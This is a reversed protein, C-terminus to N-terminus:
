FRYAAAVWGRYINDEQNVLVKPYKGKSPSDEGYQVKFTYSTFSGGLTVFFGKSFYWNYWLGIGLRECDYYL